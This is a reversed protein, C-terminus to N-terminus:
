TRIGYLTLTSGIEWSSASLSIDTIANTSAYRVHSMNTTGGSQGGRYYFNKHKTTNSYNIAELILTSPSDGIDTNLSLELNGSNYETGAVPTTENRAAGITQLNYINSSDGNVKINIDDFGFTDEGTIRIVLHTFTQPINSFTVSSASSSLTTTEILEYTPTIM